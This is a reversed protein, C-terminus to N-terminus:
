VRGHKRNERTQTRSQEAQVTSAVAKGVERKDISLPVTIIYEVRNNYGYESALEGGYSASLDPTAIQPIAVLDKSVDRVDKEMDAIGFAFGGGWYQGLKTSVKSPSHIKAKARVAKDAAAAMRSAAIQIVGLQSLMGNAFGRSINAGASYAAAVGALLTVNVVIVAASAISPALMLGSQLGMVFGTSLKQASSRADGAAGDFASALADMASKAMNGLADLGAEVVSVADQMNDLSKEASKANKAISKMNSKVLKLAAAMAIVGIASATMAIGFAGVAIATAAVAIALAACALGAVGAGMAFVVLGASLISLGAAGQTANAIVIPLVAAFVAMSSAALLAGTGLLLIGAGILLVAAGLIVLATAVVALGAGLVIAALGAAGATIAFVLLSAGLLAIAQAGAAGYLALTPLIAAIIALSAATILAGVSLVLVAAALVLVATTILLLGAGLLIMAAGAVLAGEGFVLLGAGLQVFAIAGQAGYTVLTPLVLSILALAGAALLAGVGFLLMAAGAILLSAAVLVLGVGLVIMAAGLLLAGAALVPMTYGLVLFVGSAQLGYAILAPLAAAMLTLGVGALAAGVGILAIAGGFALFGVAGATLVPGLVAAGIALLAIVAVLGLLAAVAPWGASALAIASQVILALGVAALVVSAALALTAAASQWISPGSAASATGVAKQGAAVGLLKAGLGIIAKGGMKLLSGAVSTLGPAVTNAVKLGVFAIAVKSLIPAFKAITDANNSIFDAVKKIANAVTEAASKFGEVSLTGGLEKKLPQLATKMATFANSIATGVGSFASKLASWYPKIKNIAAPIATSLWTFGAGIKENFSNIAGVAGSKGFSDWLTMLGSSVTAELNGMAGEITTVSQAAEKAMDTMGINNMAQALLDATVAGDEMGGKFDKALVPSLKQLEKRLGGALQPSANLVQNWDQANMKGAAMSQSFALAVSSFENAGGGFVAVANGVSETLKDADKVGNASLAGFTSMVDELSFVTKDAYTKLTGTSGAIREIEAESSGSFRMAQQLKQMSDSTQIAEGALNKVGSALTSFVSQGMGALFGFNFGSTLKSALTDTAGIASKLTSLFGSDTASLRAQVSYSEAM